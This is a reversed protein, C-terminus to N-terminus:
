KLILEFLKQVEYPTKVYFDAASSTMSESVLIGCARTRIARFADEDTTDDGIYVISNDEFSLNLVQMIWSIAKGKNWDIKPLIEFVKKGYMLRLGEEQDVIKEVEQKIGELYKDEDVLRYHVAVSFKKEEVLLGEIDSFKEKSYQTVKQILPIAKEAQPQIMSFEPGKIDFGHNGAYFIGELGVLNEVDARGRGSVISVTYNQCLLKLTEKMSESITALDPKDVIPTLTGDYDLFIVPKKDSLFVDRVKVLYKKNIGIGETDCIIEGNLDIHDNVKEWSEFLEHPRKKFWSEIWDINIDALDSVVIDAGNEFLDEKNGERAIGLVLGFGGNRGAMVGSSADEVVVSRAPSVGLNEAATIFIDGEPKGKLGLEVSVVGDVRTQFLDEIGVSNLITKCNKSSSAVGIKIGRNKLEKIFDVSSQFVEAGKQELLEVFKENKRNGIGCVTEKDAADTPDGFPLTIGRSELFSKVGQYRPKGDVFPLYDGKHTFERFEEKNRVERIKLYGDFAEKWSEVHLVATHTIVGDLDFIVADFSHKEM